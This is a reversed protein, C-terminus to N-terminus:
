TVSPIRLLVSGHLTPGKRALDAKQSFQTQVGRGAGDIDIFHKDGTHVRSWM